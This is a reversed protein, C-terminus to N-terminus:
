AGVLARVGVSLVLLGAVTLFATGYWRTVREGGREFRNRPERSFRRNFHVIRHWWLWAAGLFLCAGVLSGVAVVAAFTSPFPVV